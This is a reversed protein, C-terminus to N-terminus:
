CVLQVLKIIDYILMTFAIDAIIMGATNPDEIDWIKLSQPQINYNSKSNLKMHRYMVLLVIYTFLVSSLLFCHIIHSVFYHQEGFNRIQSRKIHSQIINGADVPWKTKEIIIPSAPTHGAHYIPPLQRCEMNLCAEPFGCHGYSAKCLSQIVLILMSTNM